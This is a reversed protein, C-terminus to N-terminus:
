DPPPPASQATPPQQSIQMVTDVTKNIAWGAFALAAAMIVGVVKMTTKAAHIDQSIARIETNNQKTQEKLGEVAETLKGLTNQMTGVLEVTYSYDGSPLHSSAATPFEEPTTAQRSPGEHGREPM